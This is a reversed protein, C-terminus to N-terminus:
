LEVASEFSPYDYFENLEHEYTNTRETIFLDPFALPFRFASSINM